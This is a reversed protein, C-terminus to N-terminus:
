VARRQAKIVYLKEYAVGNRVLYLGAAVGGLKDLWERDIFPRFELLQEAVVIPQM